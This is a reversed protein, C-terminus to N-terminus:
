AARVDADDAGVEEGADRQAEAYVEAYWDVYDSILRRDARSLEIFCAALRYASDSEPDRECRVAIAECDVTRSEAHDRGFAPFVFRLGLRTLPEVAHDIRCYFGGASLNLTEMRGIGEADGQIRMRVAARRNRRRESIGDWSM